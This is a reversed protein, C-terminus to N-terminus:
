CFWAKLNKSRNSPASQTLHCSIKVSFHLYFLIFSCFPYPVLSLFPSLNYSKSNQCHAHLLHQLIFTTNQNYSIPSQELGSSFYLLLLYLHTYFIINYVINIFSWDFGIFNLATSRFHCNFGCNWVWINILRRISNELPDRVSSQMPLLLRCQIM